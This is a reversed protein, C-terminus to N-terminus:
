SSLARNLMTAVTELSTGRIEMVKNRSREGSVISVDRKPRDLLSALLAIVADNAAGDVPAAALKIVLADDREGAIVTRGARPTVRIRFTVGDGTTILPIV